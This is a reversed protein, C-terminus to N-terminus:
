GLLLAAVSKDAAEAQPLPTQDARLMTGDVWTAARAFLFSSTGSRAGIVTCVFAGCGAPLHISTGRRVHPTVAGLDAGYFNSATEFLASRFDANDGARQLYRGGAHDPVEFSFAARVSIGFPTPWAVCYCVLTCPQRESPDKPNAIVPPSPALWSIELIDKHAIKMTAGPFSRRVGALVRQRAMGRRCCCQAVLPHLWAEDALAAKIKL